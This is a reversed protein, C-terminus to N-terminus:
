IEKLQNSFDDLSRKEQLTVEEFHKRPNGCMYCSCKAATDAFRAFTKGWEKKNPSGFCPCIHLDNQTHQQRDEKIRRWAKVERSYRREARTRM